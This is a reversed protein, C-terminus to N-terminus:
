RHAKGAAPDTHLASLYGRKNSSNDQAEWKGGGAEWNSAAAKDDAVDTAPKLLSIAQVSKDASM